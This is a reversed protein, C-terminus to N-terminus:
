VVTISDILINLINCGASTDCKTRHNWITIKSVPSAAQIGMLIHAITYERNILKAITHFPFLLNKLIFLEM